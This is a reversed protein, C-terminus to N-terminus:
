LIRGTLVQINLEQISVASGFIKTDFGVTVNRGSGWINYKLQNLTQASETWEGSNGNTGWEVDTDWFAAASSSPLPLTKRNTAEGYDFGWNIALDGDLGGFVTVDVQKPFLLNASSGFDLPHTFYSM